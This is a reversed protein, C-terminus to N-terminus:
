TSAPEPRVFRWALASSVLFCGAAILFSISASRYWGASASMVLGVVAVGMLTGIQRTANLTAGAVNANERGAAEVLSTTMAPVAVGVGLSTVAMLVGLVWYPTSESVATLAIAAFGAVALGVMLPQRTGARGTIRTFLLNGVVFVGWLPLMQFGAAIPGAGRGNQFFLGLMYIMGFLGFNLLFSIGNTASFRARRFLAGPLVPEVVRREQYLFVVLSAAAMAGVVLIPTSAWGYSHGNILVFSAMALFAITLVHNFLAPRNERGPIPKILKATLGLGFLGIPLNLLFIGRWGVSGVLLGGIVPGVAASASIISSWLGVMRARQQPNPFSNALLALSSPMCAAAGIGQLLRGVILVTGSTALGCCASAAVFVATGVLYITKAGYRNAMAGALLLLSAFTLTYGDVVWTLGALSLDLRRQIDAGAINIVTTDVISMVFGAALALLRIGAGSRVEDTVLAAPAATRTTM